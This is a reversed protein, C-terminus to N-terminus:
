TEGGPDRLAERIGVLEGLEPIPHWDSGFLMRGIIDGDIEPHGLIKTVRKKSDIKQGTMVEFLALDLSKDRVLPVDSAESLREDEAYLCSFIALHRMDKVVSYLRAVWQAERITLDRGTHERKAVWLRLVSPLAEAPIPFDPLSCIDWPHDIVELEKPFEGLKKEITNVKPIKARKKGKYRELLKEHIDYALVKQPVRDEPRRRINEYNENKIIRMIEPAIGPRGRKVGTGSQPKPTAKGM